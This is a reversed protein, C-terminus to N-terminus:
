RMSCGRKELGDQERQLKQALQVYRAREVPPADSDDALIEVHYVANSLGAIASRIYRCREEGSAANAQELTAYARQQSQAATNMRATRSAPDAAAAPLPALLIVAFMLAGRTPKIPAPM